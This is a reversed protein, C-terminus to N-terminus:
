WIKNVFNLVRTAKAIHVSDGGKRHVVSFTVSLHESYSNLHIYQGFNQSHNSPDVTNPTFLLSVDVHGAARLFRGCQSIVPLNISVYASLQRRTETEM